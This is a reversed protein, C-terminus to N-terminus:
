CDNGFFFTSENRQWPTQKDTEWLQFLRSLKGHSTEKQERREAPSRSRQCRCMEEGIKIKLFLCSSFFSPSISLCLAPLTQLSPVWSQSCGIDVKFIQQFSNWSTPGGRHPLPAPFAFTQLTISDCLSPPSNHPLNSPVQCYRHMHWHSLSPPHTHAHLTIGKHVISHKYWRAKQQLSLVPNDPSCLETWATKNQKWKM